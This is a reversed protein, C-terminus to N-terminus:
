AALAGLMAVIAIKSIVEALVIGVIFAIVAKGGSVDCSVRFSKWALAVFWVTVLLMLFTVLGFASWEAVSARPMQLREVVKDHHMTLFGSNVMEIFKATISQFPPLHCAVVTLLFPWRALAQTGLLDLARFASPGKLIAGAIWLVLALSLWNVIGEAPFVWFPAPMGVHTDLVGDLHARAPAAIAGTIVLIAVGAALSAGGAIRQFPNWLLSWTSTTKESPVPAPPDTM